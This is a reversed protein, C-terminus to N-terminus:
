IASMAKFKESIQILKKYDGSSKIEGRDLLFINDCQKVTSLRHAVIIITIDKNIKNMAEMVEKETLNDLASTAEDMIILKPNHYLARAIGIRQKQGGSLRVGLEGVKTQYRNPLDNSIFDHLNAIKAVRKVNEQDINEEKEGFAINKNITDDTLFIQQPVYGIQKQWQHRNSNTIEKGDIKITGNQHHLVGLIVDILTTKGSGTAGVIGIKQHSKIKLNLNKLSPENTNPYAFSVNNLEISVSFNLPNNSKDVNALSTTELSKLENYITELAPSVFRLQTIANYIQQIAPM